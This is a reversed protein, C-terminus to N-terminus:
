GEVVGGCHGTLTAAAAGAGSFVGEGIAHVICWQIYGSGVSHSTFALFRYKACIIDKRILSLAAANALGVEIINLDM